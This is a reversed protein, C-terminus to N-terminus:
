RLLELDRDDLRYMPGAVPLQVARSFSRYTGSGSEYSYREFKRDIMLLDIMVVSPYNWRSSVFDRDKARQSTWLGGFEVRNEALPKQLEMVVGAGGVPKKPPPSTAGQIYMWRSNPEDLSCEPMINRGFSGNRVGLQFAAQDDAYVRVGYVFSALEDEHPEIARPNAILGKSIGVIEADSRVPIIRRVLYGGGVEEGEVPIRKRIYYAVFANGTVYEGKTEDYWTNRGTFSLFEHINLSQSDSEDSWDDMKTYTRSSPIADLNQLDDPMITRCNLSHYHSEGTEMRLMDQEILDLSARAQSYVDVRKAARVYMHQANVFMSRLMLMIILMLAIAIMLELLTFGRRLKRM